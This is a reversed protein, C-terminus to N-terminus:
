DTVVKCGPLTKALEKAKLNLAEGTISPMHKMTLVKLSPLGALTKFAAPTLLSGSVDLETLNPLRRINELGHDTVTVGHFDIGAVQIDGAPLESEKEYWREVGVLKLKGGM